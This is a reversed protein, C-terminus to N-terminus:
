ILKINKHIKLKNLTMVKKNKNIIIEKEKFILPCHSYIIQINGFTQTYNTKILKKDCEINVIEDAVNELIANQAFLWWDSKTRALFSLPHIGIKKSQLIALYNNIQNVYALYNNIEQLSNKIGFTIQHQMLKATPLIYRNNCTQFIAFAMSYAKSVVCTLNYKMIENLLLLGSEVNGGPSDLFIIMNSANQSTHLKEIAYSVTEPNIENKIIVLNENNVNLTKLGNSLIICLITIFKKIM